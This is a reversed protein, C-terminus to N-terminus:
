RKRAALMADAMAYADSAYADWVAGSERDSSLMGVMAQAAFWDRLTMGPDGYPVGNESHVPFAWGSHDKSMM